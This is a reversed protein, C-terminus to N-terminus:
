KRTLSPKFELSDLLLNFNFLLYGLQLPNGLNCYIAISSAILVLHSGKMNCLSYM